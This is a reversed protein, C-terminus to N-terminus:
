VVTSQTKLTEGTLLIIQSESNLLSPQNVTESVVDLKKEALLNKPVVEVSTISTKLVEDNLSWSGEVYFDFEASGHESETISNAIGKFSGGPSYISLADLRSIPLVSDCKWAGALLNSNASSSLSTASLIILLLIAKIIQM